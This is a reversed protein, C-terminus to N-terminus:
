YYEISSKSFYNTLNLIRLLSEIHPWYEEREILEVKGDLDDKYKYKIELFEKIKEQYIQSIAENM